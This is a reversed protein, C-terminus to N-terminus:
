NIWTKIKKKEKKERLKAYTNTNLRGQNDLAANTYVCMAVTLSFWLSQEHNDKKEKERKREKGVREYSKKSQKNTVNERAISKVPCNVHGRAIENM